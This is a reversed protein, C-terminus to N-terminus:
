RVFCKLSNYATGGTFYVPTILQVCEIPKNNVKPPEPAAKVPPRRRRKAPPPRTAGAADFLRKNKHKTAIYHMLYEYSIGVHTALYKRTEILKQPDNIGMSFRVILYAKTEDPPKHIHYQGYKNWYKQVQALRDEDKEIVKPHRRESCKIRYLVAQRENDAARRPREEAYRKFKSSSM